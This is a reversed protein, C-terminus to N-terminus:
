FDPATRVLISLCSWLEGCIVYTEAAFAYMYWGRLEKVSTAAMWCTLLGHCRMYLAGVSSISVDPIRVPIGCRRPLVAQEQLHCSKPTPGARMM